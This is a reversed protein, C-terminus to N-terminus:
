KATPRASGTLPAGTIGRLNEQGRVGQMLIKHAKRIVRQCLPLKRLLVATRYMAERYNSVENVDERREPRSLSHGAEFQLVEGLTAQTGEIRSSLVAEHTALPAPLVHPNPIAELLGDYRALAGNAPGILPVLKSWDLREEPPFAGMKYHVAGM